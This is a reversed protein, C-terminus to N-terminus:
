RRRHGEAPDSLGYQKVKTQFTRLPMAILEAARTQNGDAMALAEQMRRRELDRLEEEIPRFKVSRSADSSPRLRPFTETNQGLAVEDATASSTLNLTSLRSAFHEPEVVPDLTTAAVFDMLNGLERINGPWEHRLLTRMAADSLIKRPRTAAACARDLFMQALLPLERLRDRLPPLWLMGGSLRFFLDQRFRGAKVEEALNRNTACVVRIDIERERVDGLRTLRQTELVRLLKAQTAAALEGVEDLFLTGGNARELHGPKAATAGTFAGREYGFLESEALSESIAACNFAILPGQRRSSWHHLAAAAMEKGTGTEGCVLVALDCAALREILSYLRTMAPDAVVIKRDGIEITRFTHAAAATTGPSAERAAQRAGAVLTDVDCGDNPCSAFGVKLSSVIGGLAEILRAALASADNASVEPLLALLLDGGGWGLVDIIRLKGSLAIGIRPRDIKEAALEAALITLPRDYRLAREMEEEARERFQAQPLISRSPTPRLNSHFVVTVSCITIVDGSALVRAGTIREGNVSTGNRSDLDAIQAQGDSVKIVAHRRSASREDLRITAEDGRGLVIEGTPPLPWMRSADGEFVVLYFRGSASAAPSPFSGTRSGPQEPTKAAATTANPDGVQNSDSSSM